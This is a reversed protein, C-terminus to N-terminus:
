AINWCPVITSEPSTGFCFCGNESRGSPMRRPQNCGNKSQRFSWRESSSLSVALPRPAAALPAGNRSDNEAPYSWNEAAITGAPLQGARSVLISYPAARAGSLTLPAARLETYMRHPLMCLFDNVTAPGHKRGSSGRVIGAVCYEIVRRPGCGAFEGGEVSGVFWSTFGMDIGLRFQRARRLWRPRM